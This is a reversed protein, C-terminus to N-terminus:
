DVHKELIQRGLVGEATKPEMHSITRHKSTANSYTKCPPGGTIVDPVFNLKSPDFELVDMKKDVDYYKRNIDTTFARAGPIGAVVKSVSGTGAFMELVKLTTGEMSTGWTTHSAVSAPPSPPPSPPSNIDLTEM